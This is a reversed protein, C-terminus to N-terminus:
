SSFIGKYEAYVTTGSDTTWFDIFIPDTPSTVTITNNGTPWASNKKLTGGGKASFTVDFNTTSSSNDSILAMRFKGMKGTAPWGTLSLTIDAGISIIQYLGNSWLVEPIGSDLPGINTVEETTAIFNAETINNGNFDNADNTKATSTDLAIIDAAAEELATKIADFNDRFGQTDNDQGAVPYLEDITEINSTSITTAM